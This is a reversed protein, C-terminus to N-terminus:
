QSQRVHYIYKRLGEPDPADLFEVTVASSATAIHVFGYDLIWFVSLLGKEKTQIDQIDKLLAESEDRVTLYKWNVYIVRQNTIVLKDLWYILSVYIIVLSFLLFVMLHLLIYTKSSVASQFLFLMLFFPFTGVIVKLIDFVFPTPHHHFVKLIQEGEGLKM